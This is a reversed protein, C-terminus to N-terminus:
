DKVVVKRRNIEQDPRANMPFLEAFAAIQEASVTIPQKMVVWDIIESCPPTTLSGAYNYYTMDAPLLANPDVSGAGTANGVHHPMADWIAQIAPNAEGEEFFVGIVAASKGDPAMHVFHVEMPYAVGDVVHESPHHFHFQALNYTKGNVDVTSGTEVNVQITHGNNVVNLPTARWNPAVAALSAPIAGASPIDIPSQQTGTACAGYAPDLHGWNDPGAEGQYGWSSHGGSAAQVGSVTATLALAAVGALLRIRYM